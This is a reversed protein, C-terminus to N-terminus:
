LGLQKRLLYFPSILSSSYLKLECLAILDSDLSNRYKIRHRIIKFLDTGMYALAAAPRLWIQISLMRTYFRSLGITQCLKLLAEPTLRGSPICHLLTMEPNYWIEWGARQIHLLAELDEGPLQYGAVRGQLFCSKPVNELWAQKRVVLGAGPPLIKKQPYYFRAKDGRDTLALFAAIRSFNEPPESEFEGFIRSGYAGAEPHSQAFSFANAVWEPAPLNDDDLFGILEGHSAEVAHQRAFALGQKPEFCYRLSVNGMRESPYDKQYQEIVEKTRDSSNNDVVIIEWGLKDVDTQAYLYELVKGVREAGNYTCVAISFDILSRDNSTPPCDALSVTSSADSLSTHM